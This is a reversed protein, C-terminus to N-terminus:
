AALPQALCGFWVQDPPHAKLSSHPRLFNNGVSGYGRNGRERTRQERNRTGEMSM